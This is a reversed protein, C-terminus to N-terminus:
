RTPVPLFVPLDLGHILQHGTWRIRLDGDPDGTRQFLAGSPYDHRDRSRVHEFGHRLYYRHLPENDTSVDIRVLVKCLGAAQRM